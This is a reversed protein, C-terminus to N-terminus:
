CLRRESPAPVMLFVAALLCRLDSMRAPRLAEFRAIGGLALPERAAVAASARQGLHLLELFRARAEEDYPPAGAPPTMRRVWRWGQQWGDAARAFLRLAQHHRNQQQLAHAHNTLSAALRPDAQTFTTEAVELARAWNRAPLAGDGSLFARAAQEQLREWTLAAGSPQPDPAAVAGDAGPPFTRPAAPLALSRRRHWREALSRDPISLM